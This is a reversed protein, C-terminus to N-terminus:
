RFHKVNATQKKVKRRPACELFTLSPPSSIKKKSARQLAYGTQGMKTHQFLDLSAPTAGSGRVTLTSQLAAREINRYQHFNIFRQYDKSFDFRTVIHCTVLVIIVTQRRRQTSAGAVGTTNTTPVGSRRM